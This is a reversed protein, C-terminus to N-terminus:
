EKAFLARLIPHLHHRSGRHACFHTMRIAIRNLLPAHVSAGSFILNVATCRTRYFEQIHRGSTCPRPFMGIGRAAMAKVMCSSSAAHHNHIRHISIIIRRVREATCIILAINSSIYLCLPRLDHGRGAVCVPSSRAFPSTCRQSFSDRADTAVRM